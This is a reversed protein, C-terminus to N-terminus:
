GPDAYFEAFLGSAAAALAARQANTVDGVGEAPSRYRSHLVGTVLIPLAVPLRVHRFGVRDVACALGVWV